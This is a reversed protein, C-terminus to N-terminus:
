PRETPRMARLYQVITKAMVDSEVNVPSGVILKGLTTKELTTPILAVEFWGPSLLSAHRGAIVGDPRALEAVTLSVGDVAVSGKPVVYPTLEPPLEIRVRWEGRGNEVSQGTGDAIQMVRGVGDIHGQVVHGGLLTTPTAAHELNVITGVTLEGITTKRLTEPIVDFALTGDAAAPDAAVTLCCGNVAVSDGVRAQYTWGQPHVVLRVGTPSPSSAHIRGLQEVIGTFMPSSNARRVRIDRRPAMPQRKERPLGM